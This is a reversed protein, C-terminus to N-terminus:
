LGPAASPVLKGGAVVAPMGVRTATGDVAVQRTGPVAV